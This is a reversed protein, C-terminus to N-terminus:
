IIYLPSFLHVFNIWISYFMKVISDIVFPYLIIIIIVCMKKVLGQPYFFLYFFIFIFVLISYLRIYNTYRSMLLNNYQTKYYVNRDNTNIDNVSESNYNHIKNDTHKTEKHLFKTYDKVAVYDDLITQASDSYNNFIAHYKVLKIAVEKKLREKLKTLYLSEGGIFTYYNKESDELQSPANILNEESDYMKRKLEEEMRKKQCEPNCLISDSAQNILNNIKTINEEDFFTTSSSM